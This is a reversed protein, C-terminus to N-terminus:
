QKPRQLVIRPTALDEGPTFLKKCGEEHPEEKQEYDGHYSEGAPAPSALKPRQSPEVTHVLAGGQTTREGFAAWGEARAENAKPTAQAEHRLTRQARHM